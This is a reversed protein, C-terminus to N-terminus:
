TMKRVIHSELKQSEIIYCAMYYSHDSSMIFLIFSSRNHIKATKRYIEISEQGLPFFSISFDSWESIM